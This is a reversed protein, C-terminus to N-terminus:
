KGELKKLYGFLTRRGIGFQKCVEAATMQTNRYLLAANKM